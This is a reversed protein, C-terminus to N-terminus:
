GSCAAALAAGRRTASSAVQDLHYRLTWGAVSPEAATVTGAGDAVIMATYGDCSLTYLHDPSLRCPVAPCM